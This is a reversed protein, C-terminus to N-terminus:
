VWGLSDSEGHWMATPPSRAAPNEAGVTGTWLNALMSVFVMTVWRIRRTLRNGGDVRGGRWDLRGAGFGDLWRIRAVIEM